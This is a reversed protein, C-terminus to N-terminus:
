RRCRHDGSDFGTCTGCLSVPRQSSPGRHRRLGGVRCGISFLQLVERAFNENAKVETTANLKKNNVMNLYSGMAANLTVDGLVQWLSGFADAYLLQQYPQDL